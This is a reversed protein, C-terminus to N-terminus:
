RINVAIPATSFHRYNPRNGLIYTRITAERFRSPLWKIYELPTLPEGSLRANGEQILSESSSNHSDADDM